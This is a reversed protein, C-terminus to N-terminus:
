GEDFLVYCVDFTIASSKKAVRVSCCAYNSFSLFFYIMMQVEGCANVDSTKEEVVTLSEIDVNMQKHDDVKRSRRWSSPPCPANQCDRQPSQRAKSERDNRLIDRNKRSGMACSTHKSSSVWRVVVAVALKVVASLMRECLHVTAEQSTEALKGLREQTEM